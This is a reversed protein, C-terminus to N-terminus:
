EEKLAETPQLNAARRAPIAAALAAVTTLLAIACLMTPIDGPNLNFFLASAARAAGYALVAGVAIGVAVLGAAETLILRLVAWANAGLAMRIGIENRRRTVGYSMVGYLGVAALLGALMAFFGSLTAMLQERVISARVMEDLGRTLVLAVPSVQRVASLIEPTLSPGGPATRMLVSVGTGPDLDQTDPMYIITGTPDHLDSYKADSVVGVIRYTLDPEGPGADFRFSTGVPDAGALYTRSYAESVVAVSPSSLTDQDTFGRGSRLSMGMVRFYDKGVNNLNPYPKRRVGDLIL